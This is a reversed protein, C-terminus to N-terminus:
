PSHSIATGRSLFPSNSGFIMSFLCVLVSSISDLIIAIYAFPKEASPYGTFLFVAIKMTAEWLKIGCGADPQEEANGQKAAIKTYGIKATLRM